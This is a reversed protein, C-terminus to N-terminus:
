PPSEELCQAPFVQFGALEWVKVPEELHSMLYHSPSPLLLARERPAFPAKESERDQLPPRWRALRTRQLRALGLDQRKLNGARNLSPLRGGPPALFRCPGSRWAGSRRIGARPCSCSRRGGPSRAPTPSGAGGRAGAGAQSQEGCRKRPLSWSGGARRRGWRRAPGSRGLM